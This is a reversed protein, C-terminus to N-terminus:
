LKLQNFISTQALSQSDFEQYKQIKLIQSM